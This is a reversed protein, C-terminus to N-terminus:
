RGGEQARAQARASETAFQFYDMAPKRAEIAARRLLLGLQELAPRREFGPGRTEAIVQEDTM